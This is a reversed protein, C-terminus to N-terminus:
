HFKQGWLFMAVLKCQKRARETNYRLTLSPVGITLAEEQVGGYDTLVASSAGLLRSSDLHGLPKTLLIHPNRELISLLGQEGLRRKTRPHLLYVLRVGILSVFARVIRKLIHPNDVNEQM